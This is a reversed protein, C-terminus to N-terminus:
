SGQLAYELNGLAALAHDAALAARRASHSGRAVKIARQLHTISARIHADGPDEALAARALDLAISAHEVVSTPLRQQGATVAERTEAIAQELHTAEAFQAFQAYSPSPAITLALAFGLAAMIIRRIM